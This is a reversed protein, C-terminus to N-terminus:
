IDTAWSFLEYNNKRGEFYRTQTQEKLSYAHEDSLLIFNEILFSTYTKTPISKAHATSRQTKRWAALECM